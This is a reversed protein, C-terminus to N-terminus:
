PKVRKFTAWRVWPNADWGLGRKAYTADWLTKMPTPHDPAYQKVDCTDWRGWRVGGHLDVQRKLAAERLSDEVTIEQVQQVGVGTVELDIRSARRPMQTSPRWKAMRPLKDTARYAIHETCAESLRYPGGCLCPCWAEAVWLRQGVSYLVVVGWGEEPPQKLPWSHRTKDGKLVARIKADADPGPFIIRREKTTTM